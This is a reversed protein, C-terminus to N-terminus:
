KIAGSPIFSLFHFYNLVGLLGVVYCAAAVYYPWRPKSPLEVLHSSAKIAGEVTQGSVKPEGKEAAIALAKHALINATRPLGQSAHYLVKRAKPSFAQGQKYGAKM